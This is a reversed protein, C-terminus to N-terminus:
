FSLMLFIRCSRMSFRRPAAARSWMMGPRSWGTLGHGRLASFSTLAAAPGHNGVALTLKQPQSLPGSHLVVWTGVCRWRGAEVQSRVAHRDIRTPAPVKPEGRWRFRALLPDAARQASNTAVQGAQDAGPRVKSSNALRHFDAAATSLSEVFGVHRDVATRPGRQAQM